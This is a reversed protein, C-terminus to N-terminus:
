VAMDEDLEDEENWDYEVVVGQGRLLNVIQELDRVREELDVNPLPCFTKEPSSPRAYSQTKLVFKGSRELIEFTFAPSLPRGLVQVHSVCIYFLGDMEQKQVRGLLEVQLIGGICLVPEPLEFKQLRNEQAMAFEPSTYTWVVDDACNDCPESMPDDEPAKLHGMRFRVSNASYIPTGPQFFAQFPHVSIETILCIDAVLKYILTEPVAPNSQGKSSWYSARRAIRDRPELTNHISEGPYNDTSSASIAESICEKLAFSTCGRALFAFVRHERELTEWEMSKSCGIGLPNKMSDPETVHDVSHLCPFMRLCLQKCLGNAIVFHRWSRSVSSVRVLDSPDELCMLIRMVTDYDLWSFFDMGTEM